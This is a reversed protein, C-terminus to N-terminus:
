NGSIGTQRKHSIRLSNNWREFQQKWAYQRILPLDNLQSDGMKWRNYQQLLYSKIKPLQDERHYFVKGSGSGEVIDEIEQDEIGNILTLIPKRAALYEYVKGTVIGMLKESSWSLLINIDSARQLEIADERPILGKDVLIDNLEYETAIDRWYDIDKGAHVLQINNLKLKGEDILEKIAAFILQARQSEKYIIGTYTLTFFPNVTSSNENILEQEFGNRIVSIKDHYASLNAKLGDSVTTVEDAYKLIRKHLAIMFRDLRPHSLMPDPTIDRYDAIWTVHPYKKKLARAILHTASPRFSSIIMDIGQEEILQKGKKIGNRIFRLGGEGMFVHMPSGNIINVLFDRINSTRSAPLLSGKSDFMRNHVTRYDLTSLSIIEEAEIPFDYSDRPMFSRNATTMVFIKRAEKRISAYFKTNRLTGIGKIPPFQYYICLINKGKVRNM